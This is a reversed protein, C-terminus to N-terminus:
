GGTRFIRVFTGGANMAAGTKASVVCPEIIQSFVLATAELIVEEAAIDFATIADAAAAQEAETAEPKFMVVWKTKDTYSGLSVGDIPAVAAVKDHVALGLRPHAM